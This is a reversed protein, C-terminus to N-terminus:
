TLVGLDVPDLIEGVPDMMSYVEGLNVGFPDTAATDFPIEQSTQVFDYSLDFNGTSGPVPQVTSNPYQTASSGGGGGTQDAWSLGGAGNTTLVQSANGYGTPWQYTFNGSLTGPARHGIYNSNDTDYLYLIGRDRISVNGGQVTNNATINSGTVTGTFTPDQSVEFTITDSSANGTMVINNAPTFTVTDGVTDAVIGISNATITGFSYASSQEFELATTGIVIPNNTILKWQTDAYSTGETVMVIMGAEIEGTENGDISRVWTGNSGAGVTQVYYLGNQSGTNQGAVLVRDNAVLNVDDVSSPAGGSLAINTLTIVRVAQKYDIDSIQEARIRTLGM